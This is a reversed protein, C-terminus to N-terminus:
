LLCCVLDFRSQLESTHEESKISFIQKRDLRHTLHISPLKHFAKAMKHCFFSHLNCRIHVLLEIGFVPHDESLLRKTTGFLDNFVQPTVSVLYGNAIM